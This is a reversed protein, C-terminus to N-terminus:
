STSRGARPTSATPTAAATRRSRRSPTRVRLPLGHRRELDPRERRRPGPVAGDVPRRDPLPPRRASGLGRGAIPKEDALYGATVWRSRATSSSRTAAWTQAVPSWSRRAPARAPRAQRRRRGAHELPQAPPRGGAARRRAQRGERRRRASMDAPLGARILAGDASRRPSTSARARARSPPSATPRPRRRAAAPSPSRRPSRSAAAVGATVASATALLALPAAVLAAKPTRRANTDRKHRHDAVASIRQQQQCPAPGLHRRRGLPDRVACSCSHLCLGLTRAGFGSGVTRAHTGTVPDPDPRDGAPPRPRTRASGRGAGDTDDLWGEPLVVRTARPARAAARRASSPSRSRSPRTWSPSCCTSRRGAIDVLALSRRLTAAPARLGQPVVVRAQPVGQLGAGGGHAPCLLEAHRRMM